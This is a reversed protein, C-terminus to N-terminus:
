RTFKQEGAVRTLDRAQYPKHSACKRTTDLKGLGNKKGISELVFLGASQM